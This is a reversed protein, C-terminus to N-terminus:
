SAVTLGGSSRRSQQYASVALRVLLGAVVRPEAYIRAMTGCDGFLLSLQEFRESFEPEWAIVAAREEVAEADEVYRKILSV